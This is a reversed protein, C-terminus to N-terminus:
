AAVHLEKYLTSRQRLTRGLPSVIDYLEQVSLAQGHHAGAARSISEEMLTGGLDNAGSALAERVGSKGLKVWSAQVNGILGHYAIRGVAYILLVERFTPGRRSRRQVYLPAGMHVYPLPVWETFGGTAKQLERTLVIHRAWHVPREVAGFMITINSRLGTNHATRHVELWQETSIKDPCLIKRVDDSLIEAATGPLSALGRDKLMQLYQDLDIGLRRAGEFVELASFAHIHIDPSGRRIADLVSLYYEGDFSPHIGGQLCVETAGSQEAEIVKHTIEDPSLLYPRGRLNLSQPGKSFACFRCKFTCINTYNINRNVVYTVTDGNVRARMSDALEIVARVDRGRANFLAVLEEIGPEQGGAIGDIVESVHSHAAKPQSHGRALSPPEIDSGSCWEHERALGTSDSHEMVPFVMEPDLWKGPDAAFEPYITLRPILELGEDETVKRVLDIAPWPREPNVHDLTVPSIGGWDDIGARLIFAQDDTLNPPSQIHVEPPLIIRAASITWRLEDLPCPPHNHMATGPKPLFGQIIVEQIHGHREHSEAIALLTRVRSKRSEGIGVLLGTTFPIQLRGADDLAKLRMQPEKDPASAHCRLGTAVTELMMGQSAAVKRLRGFADYTLAGANAHALLGTQETVLRCMAALYDVTSEYGHEGLWARAQPYRDEPQQGLTFLAEKCNADKGRRAIDLVKDPTLYPSELRAPPQAFTCYGCRDRCLNTLPIFVKPSYTVLNGHASDRISRAEAEMQELPIELMDLHNAATNGM